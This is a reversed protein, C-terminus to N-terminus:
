SLFVVFAHVYYIKKWKSCYPNFRVVFLRGQELEAEM